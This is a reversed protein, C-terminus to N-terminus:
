STRQRQRLIELIRQSFEANSRGGLESLYTVMEWVDEGTGPRIRSSPDLRAVVDVKYYKVDFYVVTGTKNLASHTEVYPTYYFQVTGSLGTYQQNVTGDSVLTIKLQTAEYRQGPAGPAPWVASPAGSADFGGPPFLGDVSNVLSYWTQNHIFEMQGELLNALKAVRDNKVTTKQYYLISGTATLIAIIGLTSAIMVEVLSM